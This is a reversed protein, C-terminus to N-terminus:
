ANDRLKEIRRKIVRLTLGPLSAVTTVLSINAPDVAILYCRPHVASLPLSGAKEAERRLSFNKELYEARSFILINQRYWWDIKENHWFKERLFDVTRFGRANFLKAWYDPWQENLHHTGGQNPKGQFPIAASFLIVPGLRVLSEVFAEACSPSLHEAVELSLVLDFSRDLRLPTELDLALFKDKPIELSNKDVLSGDIGLIDRVGYEQFVSLWAGLGCGVDVVSKPRILDVLLPVIEQASQRSGKQLFAFFQRDYNRM